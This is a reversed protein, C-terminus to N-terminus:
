KRKSARKRLGERRSSYKVLSPSSTPEPVGEVRGSVTRRWKSTADQNGVQFFPTQNGENDLCVDDFMRKGLVPTTQDDADPRLEDFVRKKFVKRAM